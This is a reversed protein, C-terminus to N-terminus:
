ARGSMPSQFQQSPFLRMLEVDDARRKEWAVASRQQEILKDYEGRYNEAHDFVMVWAIQSIAVDLGHGYESKAAVMEDVGNQAYSKMQDRLKERAAKAAAETSFNLSCHNTGTKMFINITYM